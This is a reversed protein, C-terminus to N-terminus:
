KLIDVIQKDRWWKAIFDLEFKCWNDMDGSMSKIYDLKYFTPKLSMLHDFELNGPQYENFGKWDSFDELFHFHYSKCIGLYIFGKYEFWFAPNCMSKNGSSWDERKIWLIDVDDFKPKINVVEGIYRDV